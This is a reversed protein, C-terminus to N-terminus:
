AKIDYIMCVSKLKRAASNTIIFYQFLARFFFGFVLQM